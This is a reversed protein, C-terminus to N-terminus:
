FDVTANFRVFRANLISTPRLWPATNTLGNTTLQGYTGNFVTGTNSNFMNYLDIGVNSRTRGFRLIKSVRMDMTNLREPYVAGPLALNVTVNAANGALARGLAAQAVASQVILNGAASAGNSAPDNTAALNPVSRPIASVQVDIKPVTYSILGRWSALWPEQVHCSSIAQQVGLVILLEPVKATVDCNDRTGAGSTFGGQLTLGNNTRANVTLEVGQWYATVDGYDSAKTLYNDQRGFAAPNLLAYSISEGGNPLGRDSPVTLTYTDFDSASIARNDTYTFNGWSRRSYSFEASIRPLLQQQVSASFQWDYPRVGWGKLLEPNVVTATGLSHNQSFAFFSSPNAAACFDGGTARNDQALASKLDCDPTFNGNADTWARTATQAFTSAPNTNIYVGDNAASQFYKSLNVKIATKGDGFV